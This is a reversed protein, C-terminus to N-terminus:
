NGEGQVFGALAPELGPDGLVKKVARALVAVAAKRSQDAADELRPFAAKEQDEVHVKHLSKFKGDAVPKRGFFEVDSSIAALVQQLDGAKGQEIRFEVAGFVLFQGDSGRMQDAGVLEVQQGVEDLRMSVRYGMKELEAAIAGALILGAQKVHFGGAFSGQKKQSFPLVEFPMVKGAIAQRLNEWRVGAQAAYEVYNGATLPGSVRRAGTQLRLAFNQVEPPLDTVQEAPMPVEPSPMSRISPEGPVAPSPPPSEKPAPPPLARESCDTLAWSVGVLFVIAAAFKWKM